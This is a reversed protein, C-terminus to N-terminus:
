HIPPAPSQDSGVSELGPMEAGLPGPVFPACPAAGERKQNQIKPKLTGKMQPVGRKVKTSKRGEGRRLQSGVQRSHRRTIESGRGGSGVLKSSNPLLRLDIGQSQTLHQGMGLVEGWTVRGRPPWPAQTHVLSGGNGEEYM